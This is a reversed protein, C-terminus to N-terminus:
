RGKKLIDIVLSAQARSMGAMNPKDVGAELCLRRIDAQQKHTVSDNAMVRLIRKRGHRRGLLYACLVLFAIGPDM